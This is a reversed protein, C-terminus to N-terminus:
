NMCESLLGSTRQRSLAHKDEVSEVGCIETTSRNIRCWLVTNCKSLDAVMFRQQVVVSGVGCTEMTPSVDSPNTIRASAIATSADLILGALLSRCHLEWRFNQEEYGRM